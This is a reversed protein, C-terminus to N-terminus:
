RKAPPKGHKESGGLEPTQQLRHLVALLGLYGSFSERLGNDLLVAGTIPKAALNVEILTRDPTRDVM